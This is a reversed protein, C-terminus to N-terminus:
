RPRPGGPELRLRRTRALQRRHLRGRLAPVRRDDRCQVLRIGAFTAVDPVAGAVKGSVLIVTALSSATTSVAVVHAMAILPKRDPFIKRFRSV